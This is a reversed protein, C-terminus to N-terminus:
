GNGDKYSCFGMKVSVGNITWNFISVQVESSVEVLHRIALHFGTFSTLNIMRIRNSEEGLPVVLDYYQSDDCRPYGDIDSFEDCCLWVCRAERCVCGRIYNEVSINENNKVSYNITAYNEVSYRVGNHNISSDFSNLEGSTINVSEKFSCPLEKASTGFNVVFCVSICCLTRRYSM